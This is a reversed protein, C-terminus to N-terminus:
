NKYKKAKEIIKKLMSILVQREEESFISMIAQTTKSYNGKNYADLGKETLEFSLLTSKPKERTKKVLGDREMTTMVSSLTNIGRNTAKALETLTTKHLTYIVFIIYSQQPTINYQALEKKRAQLM